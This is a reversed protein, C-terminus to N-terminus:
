QEIAVNTEKGWIRWIQHKGRFLLYGLLTYNSIYIFWGVVGRHHRVNRWYNKSNLPNRQICKVLTGISM